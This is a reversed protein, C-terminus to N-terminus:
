PYLKLNPNLRLAEAFALGAPVVMINNENAATTTADALQKTMEPKGEWAWTMMVMPKIGIATLDVTHRELAQKFTDKRMPDIPGKSNDQLVVVDFVKEKTFDFRKIKGGDKHDVYTSAIGTPRVLDWVNFWGLDAGGITVMRNRHIKQGDARALRNIMNHMGCSYFTFSNGVLMYSQPTIGLDTVAPKVSTELADASMTAAFLLTAAVLAFKTKM